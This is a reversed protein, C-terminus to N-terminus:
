RIPRPEPAVARTRTLAAMLEEMPGRGSTRRWAVAFLVSGLVLGALLPWSSIWPPSGAAPTTLWLALVLLQGTYITLPMSGAAAIPSLVRRAAPSACLLLLGGILALALGGAGLVEATTNSHATADLGAVRAGGYGLLSSTAGGILLTLQIRRRGLGLRAAFLGACVYAAWVVQPYYGTVFWEGLLHPLRDPSFPTRLDEGVAAVVLPGALAAVLGVAAVVPVPAVLVPLLVLFLAGYSDLIVAVPTGLAHLLLGLVVLLVGRLAVSRLAGRRAPGVVCREGGTILGLSVGALTAFLVSSRGDALSEASGDDAVHAYLMGIIALGRAADVGVLRPAGTM